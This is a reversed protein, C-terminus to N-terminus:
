PFPRPPHAAQPSASWHLACTLHPVAVAGEARARTTGDAAPPPPTRALQLSGGRVQEGVLESFPAAALLLHQPDSNPLLDRRHPLM